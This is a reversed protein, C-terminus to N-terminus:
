FAVSTNTTVVPPFCVGGGTLLFCLSVKIYHRAYLSWKHDSNAPKEAGEEVTDSDILEVTVKNKEHLFYTKFCNQNALLQFGKEEFRLDHPKVTDIVSSLSLVFIFHFFPLLYIETNWIGHNTNAKIILVEYTILVLTFFQRNLVVLM